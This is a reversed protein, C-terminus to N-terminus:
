KKLIVIFDRLWQKDISQRKINSKHYLTLSISGVMAVLLVIASALFAIYFYTYLCHGIAELNTLTYFIDSVNVQISDLKNEPLRLPVLDRKMLIDVGAPKSITTELLHTYFLKQILPHMIEDTMWVPMQVLSTNKDPNLMITDQVTGPSSFRWYTVINYSSFNFKTKGKFFLFIFNSFFSFIIFITAPLYALISINFELQRINLMMTVFLFLVAIAGVYVVLFVFAVYELGLFLLLIGVEIFVAILALISHIPHTTFVVIISTNLILFWLLYLFILTNSAMEVHSLYSLIQLINCYIWDMIEVM